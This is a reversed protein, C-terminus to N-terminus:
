WCHKSWILCTVNCTEEGTGLSYDAIELGYGSYLEVLEFFEAKPSSLLMQLTDEGTDAM